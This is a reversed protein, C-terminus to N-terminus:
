DDRRGLLYIPAEKFNQLILYLSLIIILFTGGVVTLGEYIMIKSDDIDLEVANTNKSDTGVTYTTDFLKTQSAAMNQVKETLADGTAVGLSLALVTLVIIGSMLSIICRRKSTGLAREIAIRRKQKIIMFYLIFVIVGFVLALGVVFLVGAIIQTGQLGSAVQEYGNDYFQFRLFESEPLQNLKQIVQNISGNKIRFSTNYGQMPGTEYINEEKEVVSASPVFIQNTGLAYQNDTAVVPYSYIGVVKYEATQFADYPKGNPKLTFCDLGGSGSSYTLQNVLNKYDIFYFQLEFSDGVKFHNLQAFNQSILCVKKGTSFEDENIARGDAIFAEGEHFAHILQLDSTPTVPVTDWNEDLWTGMSSWIKGEDTEYFGDSIDYWLCSQEQYIRAPMYEFESDLETHLHSNFPNIHLCALYTKGKKMQKTDKSTHDCFFITQGTFKPDGWLTKEVKVKVPKDPICDELPSIEAIFEQNGYDMNESRDVIFDSSRAGYYPRQEPESIYDIDLKKLIDVPLIESYVPEDFYIYDKLAADWQATSSLSNEKQTVTGITVFAEDAAKLRETVQIWLNIGITFLVTSFSLLLFLLSTKLPTHLLQKISNKIQM